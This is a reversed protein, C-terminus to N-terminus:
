GQLWYPLFGGADSLFSFTAGYNHALTMNLWPFVEYPRYLELAETALQKTYWDLVIIIATVVLWLWPYPPFGSNKMDDNTNM